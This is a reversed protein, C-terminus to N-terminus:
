PILYGNDAIFQDVRPEYTERAGVEAKVHPKFQAVLADTLGLANLGPYPGASLFEAALDWGRQTVPVSVLRAVSASSAAIDSVPDGPQPYTFTTGTPYLKAAGAWTNAGGPNPDFAQALANCVQENDIAATLWGIYATM